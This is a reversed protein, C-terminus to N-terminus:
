LTRKMDQIYKKLSNALKKSLYYAGYISVHSNWHGYKGDRFYAPNSLDFAEKSNFNLFVVNHYEAALSTIDAQYKEREFNTHYTNIYEPINVLFM